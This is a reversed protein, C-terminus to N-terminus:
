WNKIDKKLQQISKTRGSEVDKEATQTRKVMEAQTMQKMEIGSLLGDLYSLTRENSIKKVKKIISEKKAKIDM